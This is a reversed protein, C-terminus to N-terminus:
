RWNPIAASRVKPCWWSTVASTEDGLVTQLWLQGNNGVYNGYVTLSDTASNSASTM